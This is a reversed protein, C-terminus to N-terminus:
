FIFLNIDTVPSGFRGGQKVNLMVQTSKVPFKVIDFTPSQTSLMHIYLIAILSLGILPQQLRRKFIIISLLLLLAISIAFAYTLLYTCVTSVHLGFLLFTSNIRHYFLWCDDFLSYIHRRIKFSLIFIGGM